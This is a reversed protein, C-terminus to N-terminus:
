RTQEARGNRCKDILQLKQKSVNYALRVNGALEAASELDSLVRYLMYSPLGDSEALKRLRRIADPYEEEMSLEAAALHEARFSTHPFFFVSEEGARLCKLSIFYAPIDHPLFEGCGSPDCLGDPIDDTCLNDILLRCYKVANSFNDGCYVSSSVATEAADLESLAGSIDFSDMSTLALNFHACAIIYSVEDDNSMPCLEISKQWNKERFASRLEDIFTIKELKEEENENKTILYGTPVGLRDALYSLTSLSPVSSGNEILSLMNRTIKDGALDKQTMGRKQRLYKIKEGVSRTSNPM